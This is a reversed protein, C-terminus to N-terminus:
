KGGDSDAAGNQELTILYSAQDFFAVGAIDDFYSDNGEVFFHQSPLILEGLRRFSCEDNHAAFNRQFRVDRL